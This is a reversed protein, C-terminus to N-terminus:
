RRLIGSPAHGIGPVMAADAQRPELAVHGMHRHRATRPIGFCRRSSAHCNRDQEEKEKNKGSETRVRATGAQSIAGSSSDPGKAHRIRPFKLRNQHRTTTAPGEQTDSEPSDAMRVGKIM